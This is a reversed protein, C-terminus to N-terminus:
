KNTDTDTDLMQSNMIIEKDETLDGIIEKTLNIKNDSLYNTINPESLYQIKENNLSDVLMNAVNVIELKKQILKKNDLDKLRQPDDFSLDEQISQLRRKTDELEELILEYKKISSELSDFTAYSVFYIGATTLCPLVIGALLSSIAQANIVHNPNLETVTMIREVTNFGLSFLVVALAGYYKIRESSLGQKYKKAEIALFIAVVDCGFSLAIVQIYLTTTSAYSFTAFLDKFFLIDVLTLVISLIYLVAKHYFANDVKYKKNTYYHLNEIIVEGQRSLTFLQKKM